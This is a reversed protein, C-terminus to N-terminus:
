RFGGQQAVSARSRWPLAQPDRCPGMVSLKMAGLRPVERAVDEGGGGIGFRIGGPGWGM